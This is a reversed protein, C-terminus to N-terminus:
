SAALAQSGCSAAPIGTDFAYAAARDNPTYPWDNAPGNHFNPNQIGFGDFPHLTLDNSFDKSGIQMYVRPFVFRIYPRTSHQAGDLIHKAWAEISVGDGSPNGGVAPYAYGVTNGASLLLSGGPVLMQTLEPEPTCLTLSINIQKLKDPTRFVLCLADCGNTQSVDLGGELEVEASLDIM